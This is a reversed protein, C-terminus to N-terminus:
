AAEKSTDPLPPGAPGYRIWEARDGNPPFRRHLLSRQADLPHQRHYPGGPYDALLLEDLQHDARALAVEGGVRVALLADVPLLSVLAALRHPPMEALLGALRHLSTM